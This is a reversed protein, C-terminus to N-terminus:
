PRNKGEKFALYTGSPRVRDYDAAEKWGHLCSPFLFSFVSFIFYSSLPLKRNPWVTLLRRRFGVVGQIHSIPLFLREVSLDHVNKVMPTISYRLRAQNKVLILKQDALAQTSAHADKAWHCRYSVVCPLYKQGQAWVTLVSWGWCRPWPLFKRRWEIAYNGPFFCAHAFGM